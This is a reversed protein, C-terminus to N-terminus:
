PVYINYKHYVFYLLLIILEKIDVVWCLSYFTIVGVMRHKRIETERRVGWLTIKVKKFRDDLTEEFFYYMYM